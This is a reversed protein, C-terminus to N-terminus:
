RRCIQRYSCIKCNDEITTQTFPIGPNFIEELLQRFLTEFQGTISIFEVPMIGIEKSRLSPNFDEEFIGRLSYIGPHISNIEPQNTHLIYSYVMTQFAAKNRTKNEKDFLSM